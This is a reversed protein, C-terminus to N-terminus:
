LRAHPTATLIFRYPLLADEGAYDVGIRPTAVVNSEASVKNESLWITDSGIELGNHTLDIGLAKCLKAPGNALQHLPMANSRRQLMTEVGLTPVVSRILVAHPIGEPGTVINFLHHMGYTFYVYAIGGKRFMVETRKTLRGGWAHSARDSVGAYAETETIIGACHYGSIFTHLEYGLLQQALGVVDNGTLDITERATM